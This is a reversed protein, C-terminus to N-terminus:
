VEINEICALIHIEVVRVQLLSDYVTLLILSHRNIHASIHKTAGKDWKRREGNFYKERLHDM